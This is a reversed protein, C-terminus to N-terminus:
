FTGGPPQDFVHNDTFMPVLREPNVPRRPEVAAGCRPLLERNGGVAPWTHLPESPLLESLQPSRTRVPCVVLSGNYRILPPNVSNRKRGCQRFPRWAAERAARGTHAAADRTRAAGADPESTLLLLGSPRRPRGPSRSALWSPM